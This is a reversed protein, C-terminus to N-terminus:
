VGLNTQRLKVKEIGCNGLRMDNKTAITEAERSMDANKGSPEMADM